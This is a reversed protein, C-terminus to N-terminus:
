VDCACGKERLLARQQAPTHVYTDQEAQGTALSADLPSKHNYGRAEMEEVLAEHRHHLAALKGVWRRTEPHNRYGEKAQTLV